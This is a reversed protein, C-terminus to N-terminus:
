KEQLNKLLGPVNNSPGKGADGEAKPLAQIRARDPHPCSMPLALVLRLPPGAVQPALSSM